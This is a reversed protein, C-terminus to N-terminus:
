RDGVVELSFQEKIYGLLKKLKIIDKEQKLTTFSYGNEGMIHDFKESDQNRLERLEKKLEEAEKVKKGDKERVKM